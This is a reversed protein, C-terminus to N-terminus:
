DPEIAFQGDFAICFQDKQIIWNGAVIQNKKNAHMM